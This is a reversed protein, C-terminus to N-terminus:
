EGRILSNHIFVDDLHGIRAYFTYDKNILFNRIKDDGYLSSSNNEVCICNIRTNEFNIGNLAELESGEIDISMLAIEVIKHVSFIENLTRLPVTRKEFKLDLRKNKGTDTFAFMNSANFEEPINLQIEGSMSGVACAEFVANPRMSNWEVKFEEIPDIALTKANFFKEFFYSNSFNIPDNCGIDVVWANNKESMTFLRFLLSALYLDQGDQSYFTGFKRPRVFYTGGYRIKFFIFGVATLFISKVKNLM